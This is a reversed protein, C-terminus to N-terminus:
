IVQCTYMTNEEGTQETVEYGFSKPSKKILVCYGLELLESQYKMITEKWDSVIRDMSRIFESM